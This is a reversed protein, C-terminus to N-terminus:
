GERTLPVRFSRNKMDLVAMWPHSSAQLTATASNRVAATLPATNAYFHWYDITLHWKRDLKHVPWVPSNYPSHTRFIIQQKELDAIIESIGSRAMASILYQLAPAAHLDHATATQQNKNANLNVSSSFSWLSSDVLHWIQGKLADFGLINEHHDKVAFRISTM